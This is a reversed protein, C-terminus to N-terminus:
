NYVCKIFRFIIYVFLCCECALHHPESVGTASCYVVRSNPLKVQIQEVACGAKSNQANKAKHSEDFLLCGNFGGQLDEDTEGKGGTGGNCWNIIQKLRSKRGNGSKATM